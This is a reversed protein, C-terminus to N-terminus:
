GNISQGNSAEKVKTTIQKKSQAKKAKLLGSEIYKKAVEDELDFPKSEILKGLKPHYTQGPGPYFVKM